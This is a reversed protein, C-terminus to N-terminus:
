QITETGEEVEPVEKSPEENSPLMNQFAVWGSNDSMEVSCGNAQAHANIDKVRTASNPHTSLIEPIRSNGQDNIMQEFFGAAGNCAYGSGTLYKVSMEDAESEQSRGYRLGNLDNLVDAIILGGITMTPDALVLFEVVKKQGYEKQLKMASHRKEAHAIEHGLIGVLHDEQKLYKIMGTYVYIYGGPTCFANLIADNNIIKVSDYAFIQKYKLEPSKVIEGVMKNLYQYVDPYEEESLLPYEEPSNLIQQSTRYGLQVDYEPDFIPESTLFGLYVFIPLGLLLIGVILKRLKYLLNGIYKFVSQFM